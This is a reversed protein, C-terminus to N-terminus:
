SKVKKSYYRSLRNKHLHDMGGCTEYARGLLSAMLPAFRYTDPRGLCMAWGSRSRRKLEHPLMMVLLIRQSLMVPLLRVFRQKRREVSSQGGFMM